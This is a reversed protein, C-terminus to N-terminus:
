ASSAQHKLVADRKGKLTQAKTKISNEAIAKDLEAETMESVPTEQSEPTVEEADAPTEPEQNTSETETSVEDDATQEGALEAAHKDLRDWIQKERRRSNETDLHDGSFQEGVVEEVVSQLAERYKATPAGEGVRGRVLTKVRRNLDVLIEEKSPESDPKYGQATLQNVSELQCLLRRIKEGASDTVRSSADRLIKEIELLMGNTLGSGERDFKVFPGDERVELGIAQGHAKMPEFVDERYAEVYAAKAKDVTEQLGTAESLAWTIDTLPTNSDGNAIKQMRRKRQAEFKPGCKDCLIRSSSRQFTTGDAPCSITIQGNGHGQNTPRPQGRHKRNDAHHGNSSQKPASTQIKVESGVGRRSLEEAPTETTAAAAVATEEPTSM